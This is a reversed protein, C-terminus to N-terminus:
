IDWLYLEKKSEVMEEIKDPLSYFFDLGVQTEIDNVTVAYHEM